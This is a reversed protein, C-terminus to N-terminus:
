RLQKLMKKYPEAVLSSANPAPTNAQRLLNNINDLRDQSTPHTSTWEELKSPPRSGQASVMKEFFIKIAGPYYNTSQLYAFSRTDAEMEDSRSNRLTALLVAANGAVQELKSANNGLAIQLAIDAGLAQTMHETGHREEAHAIEHGLVGALSAENDLFRLLGTYVYIYGGPTCFANITKDDNIITVTYPFKGRYKIQPSQVIKNIIGQVYGRVAENQLVPYERPNARIEKDMQQGMSADQDLTFLNIGCAALGALAATTLVMLTRRIRGRDVDPVRNLRM